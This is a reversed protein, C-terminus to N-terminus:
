RNMKQCYLPQTALAFYIDCAVENTWTHTHVRTHLSGLMNANKFINLLFASFVLDSFFKSELHSSSFKAGM